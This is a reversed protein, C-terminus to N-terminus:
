IARREKWKGSLFFVGGVFFPVCGSVANGYWFGYVGMGCAIGLFMALGIRAFIGDLLAVALNLQSHGSGNILSFMPVRLASSAFLIEAIPVYTLAMELIPAETCFLGFVFRPFFYTVMGFSVAFTCTCLFATAMIKPVREIKRAGINQAIMTGAATTIASSLTNCITDLKTGVGSVASAVYGYSNVWSNVFLKSFTISASQIMMPIGLRLLPVMVERDMRFSSPKFDFGVAEREHHLVFLACFFSTGQGIVTALAAGFAALRFVGIFILDLVLNMVSAIAIFLFPRKSDGM